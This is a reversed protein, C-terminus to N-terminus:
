RRVRRGEKYNWFIVNIGGGVYPQIPNSRASHCCACETFGVAGSPRQSGASHEDEEEQPTSPDDAVLLAYRSDVTKKYYSIGAGAESSGAL